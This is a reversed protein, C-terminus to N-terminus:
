RGAGKLSAIAEEGLAEGWITFDKIEGAFQRKHDWPDIPAINVVNEDDALQVEREGIKEGEKYLRVVRGDYTATIMQWKGLELQVRSSVDRNHSWMRLGGQWRALYRAGGDSTQECRGFGAFLTRSEPQEAARVRLNITWADGAKIPLGPVDKIATGM